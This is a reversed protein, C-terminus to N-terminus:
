KPNILNNYIKARMGLSTPTITTNIIPPIILQLSVIEDNTGYIFPTHEPILCELIISTYNSYALAVSENIYSHIGHRVAIYFHKNYGNRHVEFTFKNCSMVDGKPSIEMLKYPTYIRLVENYTEVKFRKYVKISKKSTQIQKQFLKISKSRDRNDPKIIDKSVKDIITLCM